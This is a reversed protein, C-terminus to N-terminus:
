LRAGGGGLRLNKKYCATTAHLETLQSDDAISILFFPSRCICAVHKRTVDSKERGDTGYLHCFKLKEKSISHSGKTKLLAKPSM